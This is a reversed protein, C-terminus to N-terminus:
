FNTAKFPPGCNLNLSDIENTTFQSVCFSTSQKQSFSVASPPSSDCHPQSLSLNPNDHCTVGIQGSPGLLRRSQFLQGVIGAHTEQEGREVAGLIESVTARIESWTEEAVGTREKLYRAM